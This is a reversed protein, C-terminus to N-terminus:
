IKTTLKMVIITGVFRLQIETRYNDSTLTLWDVRTEFYGISRESVISRSGPISKM